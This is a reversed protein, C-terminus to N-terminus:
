GITPIRGKTFFSKVVTKHAMAEFDAQWPSKKSSTNKAHKNMHANIKARSWCEFLREGGPLVAVAYVHTILRTEREPELSPTHDIAEQGGQKWQWEDGERVSRAYMDLLTGNRKALAISGKYSLAFSVEGGMPLFYFMESGGSSPDIGTRAADFVAQVISAKSCKMVDPRAKLLGIMGRIWGDPEVMQPLAAQLDDLYKTQLALELAQEPTTTTQEVLDTTETTTTM